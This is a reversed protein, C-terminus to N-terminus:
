PTSGRILSTVVFEADPENALIRAESWAITIIARNDTIAISGRGGPLQCGVATAFDALDVAHVSDASMEGSPCSDVTTAYSSLNEANARMRDLMDYAIFTSQTTHGASANYRLANLQLVAAGLVGIALVLVAVLVELLSVGRQSTAFSIHSVGPQAVHRAVLATGAKRQRSVMIHM